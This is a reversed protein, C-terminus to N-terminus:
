TINQKNYLCRHHSATITIEWQSVLTTMVVMIDECTFSLFIITGESSVLNEDSSFDQYKIPTEIIFIIKGAKLYATLYCTNSIKNKRGNTAHVMCSDHMITSAQLGLPGLYIETVCYISRKIQYDNSSLVKTLSRYGPSPGCLYYKLHRRINFM